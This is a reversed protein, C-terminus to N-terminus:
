MRSIKIYRKIDPLSVVVAAAALLLAAGGVFSWMSM